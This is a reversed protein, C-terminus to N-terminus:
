IVLILFIIYKVPCSINFDSTSLFKSLLLNYTANWELECSAFINPNNTRNTVTRNSCIM